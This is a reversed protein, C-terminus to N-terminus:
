GKLVMPGTPQPVGGAPEVTVAWAQISDIAAVNDVNLSARGRADADFIGASVPVGSAIFWLQYVRGAEAPPLNYAYFVARRDLPDVFTHARAQPLPGLGALVVPRVDPSAVVRQAWVAGELQRRAQALEVQTARLSEEITSRQAALREVEGRLRWQAFGSGLAALLIIAAALRLPWRGRDPEAAARVRVAPARPEVPAVQAHAGIERLLRARVLDSPRVPEIEEALE